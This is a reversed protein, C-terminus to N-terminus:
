VILKNNRREFTNLIKKWELKGTNENFSLVEDGIQIDEINIDIEEYESDTNDESDGEKLPAPPYHKRRRARIKTGKPFCTYQFPQNIDNLVNIGYLNISSGIYNGEQFSAGGNILGGYVSFNPSWVNHTSTGNTTSHSIGITGYNGYGLFGGISNGLSGIGSGASGGIKFDKYGLSLFGSSGNQNVPLLNNGFPLQNIINGFSANNSLGGQYETDLNFGGSISFDNFNASIGVQGTFPNVSIGGGFSTTNEIRQEQPNIANGNINTGRAEGV